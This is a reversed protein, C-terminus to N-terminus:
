CNGSEGRRGEQAHPTRPTRSEERTVSTGENLVQNCERTISIYVYIYIYLSLSLCLSLSVYVDLIHTCVLPREGSSAGLSRSSRNPLAVLFWADLDMTMVITIMTMMMTVLSNVYSTCM